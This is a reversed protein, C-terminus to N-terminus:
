VRCLGFATPAGTTAWSAAAASSSEDEFPFASEPRRAVLGEDAAFGDLVVADGDARAYGMVEIQRGPPAGRAVTALVTRVRYRNVAPMTFTLKRTAPDWTAGRPPRVDVLEPPLKADVTVPGLRGGASFEGFGKGRAVVFALEIRQGRQVADWGDIIGLAINGRVPRAVPQRTVPRLAARDIAVVQVGVNHDVAYVTSGTADTPAFVAAWIMGDQPAWFGVQRINSPDSVDLLRLGAEYFGQAVLGDRIDFWHASCILRSWPDREVEFTDLVSMRGRRGFRWTQFSGSSRCRDAFDEETVAMVRGPLRQSNHHILGNLPGRRASRGTSYLLRPRLPNSVDYGATGGGGTIWAIGRSDQEVDHTGNGGAAERAAFRGAIRPRAPNRLDVIDIGATSGALYAWRCGDICTATHGIGRKRPQDEARPGKAFIGRTWTRLRGVVRPRTPDRVDVVHLLGRWGHPDDSVLLIGDGVDVDENQANPLDVRGVRNPARPDTIDYISVGSITSVYLFNGKARASVVGPEPLTAVPTVGPSAQMVGPLTDQAAAPAALALLIAASIWGILRMPAMGPAIM